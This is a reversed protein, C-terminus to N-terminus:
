FPGLLVENAAVRHKTRQTGVVKLVFLAFNRALSRMARWAEFVMPPLTLLGILTQRQRGQGAKNKGFFGLLKKLSM